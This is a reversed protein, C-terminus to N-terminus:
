ASLVILMIPPVNLDRIPSNDIEIEFIVQIVQRGISRCLRFGGTVQAARSRWCRCRDRGVTKLQKLIVVSVRQQTLPSLSVNRSRVFDPAM